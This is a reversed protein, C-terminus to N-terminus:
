HVEKYRTPEKRHGMLILWHKDRTCKDIEGRTCKDITLLLPLSSFMAEKRCSNTHRLEHWAPARLLILKAEQNSKNTHHSRQHQTQGQIFGKIPSNKWVSEGPQLGQIRFSLFPAQIEKRETVWM